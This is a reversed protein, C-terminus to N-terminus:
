RFVYPLLVRYGVLILAIAAISVAAGSWGTNVLWVLAESSDIRERLLRAYVDPQLAMFPAAFCASFVAQPETVGKETGAVRATYGPM